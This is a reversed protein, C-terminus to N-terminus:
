VQDVSNGLKMTAKTNKRKKKPLSALHGKAVDLIRKALAPDNVLRSITVAGVLASMTFIADAEATSSGDTQGVAIEILEELGSSVGQRTQSDTRALESGMLIVPCGGMQDDRFEPSLYNELFKVYAEPGDAMAAQAAEVFVDMSTASAEAILEEKSAFHRYFASHTLGAATMIEGVGTAGIGQEKFMQSAIEVIQKRTEAKEARSKRM